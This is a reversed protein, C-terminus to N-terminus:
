NKPSDPSRLRVTTTLPAALGLDFEFQIPSYLIPTTPSSCPDVWESTEENLTSLISNTELLRFSLRSFAPYERRYLLAFLNEPISGEKILSVISSDLEYKQNGLLNRCPLGDTLAHQMQSPSLTSLFRFLAQHSRLPAIPFRCLFITSGFNFTSEQNSRLSAALNVYQKLTLGKKQTYHAELPRLIREPIDRLRTSYMDNHNVCVWDGVLSYSRISDLNQQGKEGMMGYKQVPMEVEQPMKPKSIRILEDLYESVTNGSCFDPGSVAFRCGESIFPKHTWGSLAKLHDSLSYYNSLYSSAVRPRNSPLRDVLSAQVSSMAKREGETLDEFKSGNTSVPIDILYSFATLDTRAGPAVLDWLHLQRLLPDFRLIFRVISPRDKHAQNYVSKFGTDLVILGESSKESFAYEKGQLLGEYFPDLNQSVSAVIWQLKSENRLMSQTRKDLSSHSAMVGNQAQIRETDDLKTYWDLYQIIAKIRNSCDIKRHQTEILETNAAAPDVSLEVRNKLTIWKIGLSVEAAKLFSGVSQSNCYAVVKRDSLEPVVSFVVGTQAQLEKCLDSYSTNDCQLSINSKALVNDVDSPSTSLCLM